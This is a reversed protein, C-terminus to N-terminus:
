DILSDIVDQTAMLEEESTVPRPPFYKLLEIYANTNPTGSLM